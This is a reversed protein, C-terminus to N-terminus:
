LTIGLIAYGKTLYEGLPVKEVIQQIALKKTNIGLNEIYKKYDLFIEDSTLSSDYDKDRGLYMITQIAMVEDYELKMLIETLQKDCSDDSHSIDRLSYFGTKRNKARINAISVIEKAVDVLNKYM